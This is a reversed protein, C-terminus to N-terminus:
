SCAEIFGQCEEQTVEGCFFCGTPTSESSEALATVCLSQTSLQCQFLCSVRCSANDEFVFGVQDAIEGTEIMPIYYGGDLAVASTPIDMVSPRVPQDTVVVGDPFFCVDVVDVEAAECRQEDESPAESPTTADDEDNGHGNCALVVLPLGVSCRLLM